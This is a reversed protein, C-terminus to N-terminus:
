IKKASYSVLMFVRVNVKLVLVFDYFQILVNKKLEDNEKNNNAWTSKYWIGM